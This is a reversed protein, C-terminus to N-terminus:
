PRQCAERDPSCFIGCSGGVYPAAILISEKAGLVGERIWDETSEPSAILKPNM